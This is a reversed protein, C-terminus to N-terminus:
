TPLAGVRERLSAVMRRVKNTASSPNTSALVRLTACSGMEGTGTTAWGSSATSGPGGGPRTDQILAQKWRCLQQQAACWLSRPQVLPFASQLNM